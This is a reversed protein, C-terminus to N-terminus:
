ARRPRGAHAHPDPGPQPRPLPGPLAPCPRPRASSGSGGPPTTPPATSSSWRGSAPTPSSAASGTPTAPSGTPWTAASRGAWPPWGSGPRRRAPGRDRRGPGDPRHLARGGLPGPGAGRVVPRLRHVPGPRRAARRLRPRGAAVPELALEGRGPRCRGATSSCSWRPRATRRRAPPCSWGAGCGPATAPRTEVETLTGPVALPLGPTPLPGPRQDPAAADLAVAEAPAAM